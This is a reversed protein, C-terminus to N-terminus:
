IETVKLDTILYVYQSKKVTYINRFNKVVEKGENEYHINYTELVTATYTDKEVPSISEIRYNILTEKIKKEYADLVYNVQEDYLASDPDILYSIYPFAGDNVAKPFNALYEELLITVEETDSQTPIPEITDIQNAEDQAPDAAPPPIEEDKGNPVDEQPVKETSAAEKPTVVNSVEKKACGVLSIFLLCIVALLGLNKKVPNM